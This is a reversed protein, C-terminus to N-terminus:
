LLYPIYLLRGPGLLFLSVHTHDKMMEAVQKLGEGPLLSM